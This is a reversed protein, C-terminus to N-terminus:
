YFKNYNVTVCMITNFNYIYTESVTCHAFTFARQSKEIRHLLTLFERVTHGDPFKTQQMPFLINYSLRVAQWVSEATCTKLDGGCLFLLFFSSFFIYIFNFHSIICMKLVIWRLSFTATKFELVVVVFKVGVRRKKRRRRRGKMRQGV